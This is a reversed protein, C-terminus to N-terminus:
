ERERDLYAFVINCFLIWLSSIWINESVGVGSITLMVALSISFIMQAVMM